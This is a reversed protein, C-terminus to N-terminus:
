PRTSPWRSTVAFVRRAMELINMRGEGPAPELFRGTRGHLYLIEGEADVLVGAPAHHKLLEREM